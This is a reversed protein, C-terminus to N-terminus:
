ESQQLLTLMWFVAGIAWVVGNAVMLYPPKNRLLFFGVLGLMLFATFANSALGLEPQFKDWSLTFARALLGFEAGWYILSGTLGLKKPSLTWRKYNRVMFIFVVIGALSVCSRVVFDLTSADTGLIGLISLCGFGAAAGSVLITVVVAWNRMRQLAAAISIALGAMTGFVLLYTLGYKPQKLAYQVGSFVLYGAALIHVVALATLGAPATLKLEM